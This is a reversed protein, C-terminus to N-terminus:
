FKFHVGAQLQPPPTSVGFTTTYIWRGAGDLGIACAPVVVLIMGLLCVPFLFYYTYNWDAAAAGRHGDLICWMCVHNHEVPVHGNGAPMIACFFSTEEASQLRVRASYLAVVLGIPCELWSVDILKEARM